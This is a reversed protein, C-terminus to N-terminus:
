FTPLEFRGIGVMKIKFEKTKIVKKKGGGRNERSNSWLSSWLCSYIHKHRYFYRIEDFSISDIIESTPNRRIESASLISFDLNRQFLSLKIRKEKADYYFSRIIKLLYNNIKRSFISEVICHTNKFYAFLYTLVNFINKNFMFKVCFSMAFIQGAARYKFSANRKKNLYFNHLLSELQAPNLNFCRFSDITEVLAM